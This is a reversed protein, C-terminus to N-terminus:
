FLHNNIIKAGQTPKNIIIKKIGKITKAKNYVKKEDKALYILHVNPGADITFYVSLGKNRWSLVNQIINFTSKNWYFLSPKQTMMVAHMNLTDYEIVQGFSKFNKNNLAKKLDQHRKKVTKLRNKFLPSSAANSMGKPSSTKKISSSTILLINRIHWYDAPYLSRAYSSNSSNGKKWQCFGDPISRCASGSGLRALISLEKQSLKLGAASTAALTLAAFGSASSAIGSSKPFSNQTVIKAKLNLKALKRIRSLHKIVRKIEKQTIKEGLFNFSDTKYKPNFEVTTTTTCKDLNMSISSNAPLRLNENTKGWYKIFAINAPATATKKM